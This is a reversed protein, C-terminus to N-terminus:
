AGATVCWHIYPTNLALRLAGADLVTQTVRYQKDITGFLSLQADIDKPISM